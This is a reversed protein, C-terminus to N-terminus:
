INEKIWNLFGEISGYQKAMADFSAQIYEDEARYIRFVKKASPYDRKYALVLAAKGLAETFMYRNTMKYDILADEISKGELLLLLVGLIGTRDKGATCHILTPIGEKKNKLLSRLACLINDRISPNLIMDGYISSMSPIMKRLTQKDKITKIANAVDTGTERTVGLSEESFIPLHINQIGDIPVDPKEEREQATRLDYIVKIGKSKILAIEKKSLSSM